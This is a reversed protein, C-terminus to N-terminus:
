MQDVELMRASIGTNESASSPYMYCLFASVTSPEFPSLINKANRLRKERPM